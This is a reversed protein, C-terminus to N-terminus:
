KIVSLVFGALLEHIWEGNCTFFEVESVAFQFSSSFKYMLIRKTNFNVNISVSRRGTPKGGPPVSAVDAHPNSTTPVDWIDFDDPVAYFSLKPLGQDSDSYYHLTITILSVRNSFIFLLQGNSGASWQYHSSSSFPRESGLNSDALKLQTGDCHIYDISHDGAALGPIIPYRRCNASAIEERTVSDRRYAYESPYLQCSSAVVAHPIVFVWPMCM